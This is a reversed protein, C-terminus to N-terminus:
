TQLLDSFSLIPFKKEQRSFLFIYSGTEFDFIGEHFILTSIRYSFVESEFILVGGDTLTDRYLTFCLFTLIFDLIELILRVILLSELFFIDSEAVRDDSFFEVVFTLIEEDDLCYFCIM